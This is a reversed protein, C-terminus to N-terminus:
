AITVGTPIEYAKNPKSPIGVGVVVKNTEDVAKLTDVSGVVIEYVEAKHGATLGGLAVLLYARQGETLVDRVDVGDQSANFTLTSDAAEAGAPLKGKFQTGIDSSEVFTTSTSFGDISFIEDTLDTGAGIEAATPAPVGDTFTAVQPILVVKNVARSVFRKSRPIKPM